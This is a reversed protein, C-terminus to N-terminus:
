IQTKIVLNTFTNLQTIKNFGTLVLGRFVQQIVTTFYPM